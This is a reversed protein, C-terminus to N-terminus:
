WLRTLQCGAAPCSPPVAACPCLLCSDHKQCVITTTAYFGGQWDMCAFFQSARLSKTSFMCVSFGKPGYAYKHPDCSISTVGPVAFDVPFQLPFGAPAAFPNIFSGLCCDVHCGIKWRLALQGLQPIPDYNGHAYDPASGAVCITNRDVARQMGALDCRLGEKTPSVKRIEINLYFGAKDFAAHATQPVVINPATVGRARAQERYALCALIISETGGSTSIGCSEDPDGSYLNLVM